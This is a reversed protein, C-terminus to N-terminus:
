MNLEPLADITRKSYNFKLPGNNFINDNFLFTFGKEASSPLNFALSLRIVPQLSNAPELHVLNCYLTDHERVLMFDNKLDTNAYGLINGYGEANFVTSKVRGQNKDSDEIVFVFSVQHNYNKLSEMVENKNLHERSHSLAMYEPTLLRLKYNVGNLEKTILSPSENSSLHQVYADPGLKERTGCAAVM